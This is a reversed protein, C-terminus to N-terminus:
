DLLGAAQADNKPAVKPSVSEGEMIPKARNALESQARDIFAKLQEPTQSSMDKEPSEPAEPAKPAVHGALGLATKAANLRITYSADKDLMIEKLLKTAMPALEIKFIAQVGENVMTELEPDTLEAMLGDAGPAYGMEMKDPNLPRGMLLSKCLLLRRKAVEDKTNRGITKTIAM